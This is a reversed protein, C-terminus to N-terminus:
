LSSIQIGRCLLHKIVLFLASADTAVAAARNALRVPVTAPWASSRPGPDLLWSV